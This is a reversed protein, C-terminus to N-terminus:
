IGPYLCKLKGDKLSSSKSKSGVEQDNSMAITAVNHEKPVDAGGEMLYNDVTMNSYECLVHDLISPQLTEGDKQHSTMTTNDVETPVTSVHHDEEHSGTRKQVESEGIDVSEKVIYTVIEEIQSTTMLKTEVRMRFAEVEDKAMSEQEEEQREREKREWPTEGISLRAM